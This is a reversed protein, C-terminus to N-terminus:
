IRWDHESDSKSLYQTSWFTWGHGLLDCYHKEFKIFNWKTMNREGSLPFHSIFYYTFINVKIRPCKSCTLVRQKNFWFDSFEHQYNRPLLWLCIDPFLSKLLQPLKLLLFVFTQWLKEFTITQVVSLSARKPLLKSCYQTGPLM